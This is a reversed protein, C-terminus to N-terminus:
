DMLSSVVQSVTGDGGAIVVDTIKEEKIISHLFSYDGSAVSPFIHFPIKKSCNNKGFLSGSSGKKDKYRFYPQYYLYDNRM